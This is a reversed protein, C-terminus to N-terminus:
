EVKKVARESGLPEITRTAREPNLIAVRLGQVQPEDKYERFELIKLEGGFAKQIEARVDELSTRRIESGKGTVHHVNRPVNKVIYKEWVTEKELSSVDLYNRILELTGEKRLGQGGTLTIASGTQATKAQTVVEKGEFFDKNVRSKVIAPNVEKWISRKGHRFQGPHSDWASAQFAIPLESGALTKQIAGGLVTKLISFVKQFVEYDKRRTNAM